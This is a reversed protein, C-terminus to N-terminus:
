LRAANKYGFTDNTGVSIITYIYPDVIQSPLSRRGGSSRQTTWNTWGRMRWYWSRSTHSWFFIMMLSECCGSQRGDLAGQCHSMYISCCSNVARPPRLILSLMHSPKAKLAITPSVTLLLSRTNFGHSPKRRGRWFLKCQPSQPSFQSSATTSATSARPM